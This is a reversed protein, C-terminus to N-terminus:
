PFKISFTQKTYDITLIFNSLFSKVGLLVVPLNPMFDIPVNNIKHALNGNVPNFIEFGTTHSFAGTKGAGTRVIKSTGANLTHGLKKAHSAPITCESAGTDILGWTIIFKNSHPNLIKVPLMPLISTKNYITFPCNNIPM